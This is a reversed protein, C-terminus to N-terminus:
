KEVCLLKQATDCTKGQYPTYFNSGSAGGTLGSALGGMSVVDTFKGQPTYCTPFPPKVAGRPVPYGDVFKDSKTWGQCTSTYSYREPLLDTIAKSFILACNQESKTDVRGLWLNKFGNLFDPDMNDDNLLALQSFRKYFDGFDKGLVRHCTVGRILTSSQTAEVFVGDTKRDTQGLRNLATEEEKDGGIFAQWNGGLKQKEAEQQCIKDAGELGGLNGRYSEQTIFVRRLNPYDSPLFPWGNALALSECNFNDAYDLTFNSSYYIKNGSKWPYEFVAIWYDNGWEQSQYIDWDYKGSDAVVNKAIWKANQGKFLVIGVRKIGKAQWTIQQKKGIEWVVGSAPSTIKITRNTQGLFLYGLFIASAVVVIILVYILVKEITIKGFFSFNM